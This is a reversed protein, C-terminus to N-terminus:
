RKEHYFKYLLTINYYIVDPEHQGYLNNHLLYKMMQSKFCPAVVAGEKIFMIVYQVFSTQMLIHFYFYLFFTFYHLIIVYLLLPSMCQCIENIDAVPRVAFSCYPWCVIPNHLHSDLTARVM